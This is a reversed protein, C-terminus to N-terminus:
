PRILGTGCSRTHGVRRREVDRERGSRTSASSDEAGGDDSRGGKSSLASALDEKKRLSTRNSKEFFFRDYRVCRIAKGGFGRAIARTGLFANDGETIPM